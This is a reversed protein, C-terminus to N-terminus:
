TVGKLFSAFQGQGFCYYGNPQVNAHTQRICTLSLASSNINLDNM